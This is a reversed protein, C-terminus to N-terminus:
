YKIDDITITGVGGSMHIINGVITNAIDSCLITCFNAVEEPMTYREIPNNKLTIGDKKPDVNLMKTATPGPSIANVNIGYEVYKKALGITLGKGGWKSVSYANVAPRNGSTSLINIVKGKVKNTKMHECILQSIFYISELNITLVKEYDEITTNPISDGIGIGANNVLIDINIKKSNLFEKIRNETDIVNSFDCQITEVFQNKSKIKELKKKSNINKEESRGILIVSAGNKIFNEAIALGIGSNGGTVVAIKDKLLEGYLIPINVPVKKLFLIRIKKLVKKVANKM